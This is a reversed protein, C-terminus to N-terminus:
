ILQEQRFQQCQHEYQHDQQTARESFSVCVCCAVTDSVFLYVFFDLCVWQYCTSAHLISVFLCLGGSKCICLHLCATCSSVSLCACLPVCLGIQEFLTHVCVCLFVFVFCTACVQVLNCEFGPCFQMWSCVCVKSLFLLFHQRTLFFLMHACLPLGFCVCTSSCPYTHMCVSVCLARQELNAYLRGLGFFYSM